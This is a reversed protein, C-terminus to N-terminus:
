KRDVHELIRLYTLADLFVGVPRSNRLEIDVALKDAPKVIRCTGTDDLFYLLGAASVLSAHTRAFRENWVIAGTKADFAHAFGRDDTLLLWGAEIIPSRPSIVTCSTISEGIIEEGSTARGAFSGLM